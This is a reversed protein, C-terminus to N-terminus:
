MRIDDEKTWPPNVLALFKLKEDGINEIWQISEDPILICDGRKVLQVEGNIHMQGAGSLILYVEKQKLKHRYSSQGVEITAEAISYPLDVADNAPHLWERIQCGDNAIFAQSTNINKVFM